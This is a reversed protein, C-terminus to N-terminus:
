ALDKYMAVSKVSYGAADYLHRAVANPGFVNLGLQTAGHAAAFEEAAHLTPRGLGTGRFEEDIVIDYIWWESVAGPRKALWLIGVKEDGNLVDFVFQGEALEDGVLLQARNRQINEEAAEPSNGADLLDKRYSDWMGVLWDQRDGYSM